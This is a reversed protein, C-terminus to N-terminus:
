AVRAVEGAPLVIKGSIWDALRCGDPTNGLVLRLRGGGAARWGAGRVSLARESRGEPWELWGMRELARLHSVVGTHKGFGLAAAMERYTPPRGRDLVSRIIVALAEGQRRTLGCHDRVVRGM